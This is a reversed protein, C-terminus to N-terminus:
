RGGRGPGGMSQEFEAELLTKPNATRPTLSLSAPSHRQVRRDRSCGGLEGAFCVLETVRGLTCPYGHNSASFKCCCRNEQLGANCTALHRKRVTATTSLSLVKHRAWQQRSRYKAGNGLRPIHQYSSMCLADALQAAQPSLDASPCVVLWLQLQGCICMCRHQLQSDPLPRQFLRVLFSLWAAGLGVDWVCGHATTARSSCQVHVHNACM